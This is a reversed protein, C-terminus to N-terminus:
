GIYYQAFAILWYICIVVQVLYFAFRIQVARVSASIAHTISQAIRCDIVIYALPDTIHSLNTALALLLLGGVFPFSEYCNAHARCLRASFDSVDTGDTKFSNATRKGTLILFVRHAIVLLIILLTWSIYGVLSIATSNM